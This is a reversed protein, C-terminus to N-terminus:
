WIGTSITPWWQDLKGMEILEIIVIVALFWFVETLNRTFLKSPLTVSDPMIVKQLRPWFRPVERCYTAYPEGFLEHLRREEARIVFHYYTLFVIVGVTFLMFSQLALGVGCVGLFSFFYLPNRCLSFPGDQCLETNKRGGIFGYSWIRGLAALFLFLFGSLKMVIHWSESFGKPILIFASALWASAILFSVPKRLIESRFRKTTSPSSTM